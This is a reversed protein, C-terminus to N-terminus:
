LSFAACQAPSPTTGQQSISSPHIFLLNGLSFIRPSRFSWMGYARGGLGAFCSFIQRIAPCIVHALAFFWTNWAFARDSHARLPCTCASVPRNAQVLPVKDPDFMLWSKNELHNWCFIACMHRPNSLYLPGHTVDKTPGVQPKNREVRGVLFTV